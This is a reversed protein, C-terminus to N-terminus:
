ASEGARASSRMMISRMMIATAPVLWVPVAPYKGAWREIMDPMEGAPDATAAPGAVQVRLAV